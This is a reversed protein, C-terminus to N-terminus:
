ILVYARFSLKAYHSVYRM